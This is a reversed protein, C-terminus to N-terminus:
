AAQRNVGVLRDFEKKMVPYCECSKAELGERNLISNHSSRM